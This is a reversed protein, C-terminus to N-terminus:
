PSTVMGAFLIEGTSDHRILFLFPRDLTLTAAPPASTINIVVATAAAAETGEEDVSIFAKHVVDQIYLDDRDPSIGTFDAPPHAFADVMGLQTLTEVASLQTDFEFSPMTLGVIHVSLRDLVESLFAGDLSALIEAFRGEDPAIVLMSADGAYPLRAAEYADGAAYQLRGGGHMLPVTVEGGDLLRFTGPKTRTPDFRSLWNAKFWIANTLVVRTDTTVTGEPLLDVIRNETEDAVWDNIEVTAGAPDGVFDVLRVGTDYASSLIELFAAEFGFGRQGWLANATNIRLPERDDDPPPEPVNGIRLDLENRAEHVEADPLGLSLADRMQAATNGRAGAYAMTLAAAISFPSLITNEGEVGALRLLALGFETNGAVLAALQEDTIDTSSAYQVEARALEGTIVRGEPLTTTVQPPVTRSPPSTPSTITPAATPATGDGSDDGCSAAVLAFAVLIASLRWGRRM